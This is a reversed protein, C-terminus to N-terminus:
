SIDFYTALYVAVSVNIRANRDGKEAADSIFKELQEKYREVVQRKMTNLNRITDETKCGPDGVYFNKDDGMQMHCLRFKLDCSFLEGENALQFYMM